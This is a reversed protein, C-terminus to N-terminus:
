YVQGPDFIQKKDGGGVRIEENHVSIYTVSIYTM